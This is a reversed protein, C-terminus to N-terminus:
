FRVGAMVVGSGGGVGVVASAGLFFPGIDRLVVAGGRRGFPDLAAGVRWPHPRVIQGSIPIDTGTVLVGAPAKATVHDGDKGTSITFDLPIEDCPPCVVDTDRVHIVVRVTDRVRIKIIRVARDGQPIATAPATLSDPKRELTVSGDKHAVPASYAASATEHRDYVRWGLAFGGILGIIVAILGIYVTNKTTM